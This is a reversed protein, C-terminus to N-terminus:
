PLRNLHKNLQYLSPIFILLSLLIAGGLRLWSSGFFDILQMDYSQPYLQYVLLAAGNNIIHLFIGPLISGTRYTLWGLLLGALFAHPMQAPNGHIAAFLLSTFVVSGWNVGNTPQWLRGVRSHEAARLIAGRFVVEEAIPALIVLPIFALPSSLVTKFVDAAVDQRLAEPVLEEVFQSPILIGIAILFTWYLTTWPSSKLYSINFPCWKALAFVVIAVLSSLSSGLIIGTATMQHNATGDILEGPLSALLQIIVFAIFYVLVKKM